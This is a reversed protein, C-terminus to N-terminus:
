NVVWPSWKRFSTFMFFLSLPQSEVFLSLTHCLCLSLNLCYFLFFINASHFLASSSLCFCISLPNCCLAHIFMFVTEMWGKEREREDKRSNLGASRRKSWVTFTAWILRRVQLKVPSIFNKKVASPNTDANVSHLVNLVWLNNFTHRALSWPVSIYTLESKIVESM